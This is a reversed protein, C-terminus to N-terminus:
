HEDTNSEEFSSPEITSLMALHRQEPSRLKREIEIGVDKNEIIHESPHNKRVRWSPNKSSIQLNKQDDKEQEAEPQEEEKEVEEKL